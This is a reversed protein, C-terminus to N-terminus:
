WFESMQLSEADVQNTIHMESTGGVTQWFLSNSSDNFFDREADNRGPAQIGFKGQAAHHFL